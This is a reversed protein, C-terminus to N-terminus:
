EWNMEQIEENNTKQTIEFVYDHGVIALQQKIFKKQETSLLNQSTTKIIIKM